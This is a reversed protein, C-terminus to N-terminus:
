AGGAPQGAPRTTVRALGPALRSVAVYGVVAVAAGAPADFFYHQGTTVTTVMVAIALAAVGRRVVRGAGGRAVLLAGLMAFFAHSSPFCNGPMDVSFVWRMLRAGVSGSTANPRVISVPWGWYCAFALTSTVTFCALVFAIRRWSRHYVFPVVAFLGGGAVYIMATWPQIIGPVLRSPVLSPFVASRGPYSAYRNLREYAFWWVGFYAAVLVLRAAADLIFWPRRSGTRGPNEESRRTRAAEDFATCPMSQALTM